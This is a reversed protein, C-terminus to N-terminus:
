RDLGVMNIFARPHRMCDYLQIMADAWVPASDDGDAVPDVLRNQRDKVWKRWSDAESSSMTGLLHQAGLLVRLGLRNCFAYPARGSPVAALLRTVEAGNGLAAAYALRPLPLGRAIDLALQNFFRPNMDILLLRDGVRMFELEFVGYYGISELLRATLTALSVDVPAHEFCLGIGMRRPRQLVKVAGLLALNGGSEERFGSLSYIWRTAEAHYRQLMPQALEPMCVAVPRWYPNQRSFKEYERSARAPDRSLLAGKKHAKLFIQTRPKIMLPGDAERVARAVDASSEPFWTEPADFGVARAAQLLSKKDLVRMITQLDPQYLAFGM